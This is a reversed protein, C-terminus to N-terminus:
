KISTSTTLFNLSFVSYKNILGCWVIGCSCSIAFHVFKKGGSLGMLIGCSIFIELSKLLVRRCSKLDAEPCWLSFTNIIWDFIMNNERPIWCFIWFIMSLFFNNNDFLALSGKKSFAQQLSFPSYIVILYKSCSSESIVVYLEMTWSNDLIKSSITAM